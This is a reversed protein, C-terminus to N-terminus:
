AARSFHNSGALGADRCKFVGVEDPVPAGEFHGPSLRVPEEPHQASTRVFLAASRREHDPLLPFVM